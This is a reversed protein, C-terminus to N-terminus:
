EAVETLTTRLAARAAHLTAAVTGREVRAVEAIEQYGLGAYHRLFLILRQREPLAAVAARVDPDVPPRGNTALAPPIPGAPPGARLLDRCHNTLTRWIWAELSGEGRYDRRARIARAFAEQVADHARERDGLMGDAVRVFARYRRRYLQEIEALTREGTGHVMMSDHRM